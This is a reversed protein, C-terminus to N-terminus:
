PTGTAPIIDVQLAMGSTLRIESGAFIPRICGSTSISSTAPISRSASSRIASATTCPTWLAGGAVGIGITEYWAAVASFYPAVLKDVYDGIEPPLEPPTRSWSAPARMSRAMCAMPWPSPIAAGSSELSPSPLGYVARHGATLMPHCFAAPREHGDAAGRALESMGPEISFCVNRVGQSTFTAAFEFAALQDAENIARLGDAPDM